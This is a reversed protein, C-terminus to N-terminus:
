CECSDTPASCLARYFILMWTVAYPLCLLSVFIFPCECLFYSLLRKVKKVTKSPYKFAPCIKIFPVVWRVYIHTINMEVGYVDCYSYVNTSSRQNRCREQIVSSYVIQKESEILIM